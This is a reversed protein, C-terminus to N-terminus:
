GASLLFHSGCGVKSTKLRWFSACPLLSNANVLRELPLFNVGLLCLAVLVELCHKAFVAVFGEGPPFIKSARKARKVTQLFCIAEDFFIEKIDFLGRTHIHTCAHTHTHTHSYTYIHKRRHTHLKTSVQGDRKVSWALAIDHVDAQLLCTANNALDVLCGASV